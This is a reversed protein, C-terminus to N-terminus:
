LAQNGPTVQALPLVPAQLNVVQSKTKNDLTANIDYCDFACNNLARYSLKTTSVESPHSGNLVILMDKLVTLSYFTFFEKESNM